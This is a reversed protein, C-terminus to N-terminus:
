AINVRILFPQPDSSGIALFRNLRLKCWTGCLL